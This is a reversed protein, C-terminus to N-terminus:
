NTESAEIAKKFTSIRWDCPIRVEYVPEMDRDDVHTIECNKILKRWLEADQKDRNNDKSVQAVIKAIGERLGDESIHPRHLFEAWKQSVRAIETKKM